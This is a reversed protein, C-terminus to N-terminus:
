HCSFEPVCLVPLSISAACELIPVAPFVGLAGPIICGYFLRMASFQVDASHLGCM